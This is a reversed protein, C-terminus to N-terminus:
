PITTTQTTTRYPITTTQTTTRYPRTTTNTTTQTKKYQDYSMTTTQTTVSCWKSFQKPTLITGDATRSECDLVITKKVGQGESIIRKVIKLLDSETLKVKKM